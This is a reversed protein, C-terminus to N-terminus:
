IFIGTLADPAHVELELGHDGKLLRQLQEVGGGAALREIAAALAVHDVKAYRSKSTATVLLLVLSDPSGDSAVVVGQWHPPRPFRPDRAAPGLYSAGVGTASTSARERAAAKAAQERDYEDDDM